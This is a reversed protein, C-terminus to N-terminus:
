SKKQPRENCVIRCNTMDKWKEESVEKYLIFHITNPDDNRGSMGQALRGIKNAFRKMWFNRHNNLKILHHFELSNETEDDLVAGTFEKLYNTKKTAHM